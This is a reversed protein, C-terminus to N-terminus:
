PAQSGVAGPAEAKAAPHSSLLSGASPAGSIRTTGYVWGRPDDSVLTLWYPYEPESDLRFSYIFVFAYRDGDDDTAYELGHGLGDFSPGPLRPKSPLLGKSVLDSLKRPYRGFRDRHADLAQIIRDCEPRIAALVAAPRTAISRWAVLAVALIAAAALLKIPLGVRNL